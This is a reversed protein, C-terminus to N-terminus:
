PLKVVPRMAAASPRNLQARGHTVNDGGPFVVSSTSEEDWRLGCEVVRYKVIPAGKWWFQGKGHPSRSGM